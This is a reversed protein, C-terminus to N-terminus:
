KSSVVSQQTLASTSSRGVSETGVSIRMSSWEQKGSNHILANCCCSCRSRATSHATPATASCSRSKPLRPTGDSRAPSAHRSAATSCATKEASLFFCASGRPPSTATPRCSQRRHRVSLIPRDVIWM